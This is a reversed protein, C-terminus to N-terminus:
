PKTRRDWDVYAVKAARRAILKELGKELHRRRLEFFKSRAPLLAAGSQAEEAMADLEAQALARQEDIEALEEDHTKM